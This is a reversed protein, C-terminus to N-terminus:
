YPTVSTTTDSYAISHLLRAKTETNIDPVIESLIQMAHDVSTGPNVPLQKRLLDSMGGVDHGLRPREEQAQESVADRRGRHRELGPAAEDLTRDAVEEQM